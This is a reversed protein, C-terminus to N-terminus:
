WIGANWPRPSFTSTHCAAFRWAMHCCQQDSAPVPLCRVPMGCWCRSLCCHEVARLRESAWSQLRPRLRRGARRAAKALWAACPLVTILSRTACRRWQQWCVAATAPGDHSWGQAASCRCEAHKCSGSQPDHPCVLTRRSSLQSCPSVETPQWSIPSTDLIGISLDTSCKCFEGAELRCSVAAAGAINM